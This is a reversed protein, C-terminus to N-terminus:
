IIYPIFRKTTAMYQLYAYGFNKIRANEETKMRYLISVVNALLIVLFSIWNSLAFSFGKLELILGCYIPHRIVKFIGRQVLKSKDTIHIYVTWESRLARM